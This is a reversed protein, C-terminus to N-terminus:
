ELGGVKKQKNISIYRTLPSHAIDLQARSGSQMNFATIPATIIRDTILRLQVLQSYSSANFELIRNGVFIQM